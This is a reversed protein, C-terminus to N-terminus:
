LVIIAVTHQMFCTNNHCTCASACVDAYWAAILDVWQSWCLISLMICIPFKTIYRKALFTLNQIRELPLKNLCKWHVVWWQNLYHTPASCGLEHPFINMVPCRYILSLILAFHTVYGRSVMHGSSITFLSRTFYGLLNNDRDSKLQWHLEDTFYFGPMIDCHKMRM